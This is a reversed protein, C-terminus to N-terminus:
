FGERLGIQWQLRRDPRDLPHSIAFELIAFGFLNVRAAGGASRVVPRTGGLFAPLDTSTWAVGADMFAAVEIPIRGYQLDRRFLGVLPARVELNAVLLRSGALNDLLPCSGLQVTQCEAATISGFGYGHVVDPYGEFLPVLHSDEAGSGYRGLHMVRFAVTIPRVPMFYRRWDLTVASFGITGATRGLEFRYREGYIPSTAGYYTTDHVFAVSGEALKLPTELTTTQDVRSIQGFGTPSFVQTITEQSFSLSRISGTFELRTAKSLPYSTVAFGAPGTQRDIVTSVTINDGPTPQQANIFGIGQSVQAAAVAWNWRHRRNAYAVEAQLDVLKGGAYAGVALQRDGLMDSFSAAMGGGVFGGYGSIGATVSPQALADLMLHGHDPATPPTIDPSPLGRLPDGLLKEIDGPTSARGALAAGADTLDPSVLAVTQDPDLVYVSLGDDEFVSFALRGSAPALSLAPSSATIGAAGTALSTLQEIPGGDIAMRYVNSIGDPEAIFTLMRGDASVQPSLHKGRLFGPIPTVESTALTLKALRLPGPKLTDLNTSFRESIFVLAKGDPTFVPELDAYPDHTLAQAKGTALTLLYLDSIGGKNGSFAITKGDPSFAPDIADDLDPLKIERIVDGNRADILTVEPAGSRLATIAIVRGDPSWAGASDLFELSDFHADTAAHLLKHIVKGSEADALYLEIAFRDRESFYAIQKGDPSVRPGINYRGSGSDRSIVLRPDSEIPARNALAATTQERIARHWDATLSDPDTGLQRALGVLDFRPNAASRVLSAVTRDGYKGGIYAWFAQGWRYPFYKPDDLQRITPLKERIAADRLWM